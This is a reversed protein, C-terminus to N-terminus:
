LLLDATGIMPNNFLTIEFDPNLNGSFNGFLALHGSADVGIRLQGLGSFADTGVFM